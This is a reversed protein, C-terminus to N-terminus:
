AAAVDIQSNDFFSLNKDLLRVFRFGGGLKEDGEQHGRLTLNEEFRM